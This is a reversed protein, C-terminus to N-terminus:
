DGEGVKQARGCGFTKRVEAGGGSGRAEVCLIALKGTGVPVREWPKVAEAEADTNGEGGIVAGCMLM